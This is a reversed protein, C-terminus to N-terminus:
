ANRSQERGALFILLWREAAHDDGLGGAAGTGAVQEHVLYQPFSGRLVRTVTVADLGL